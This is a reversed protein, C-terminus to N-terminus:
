EGSGLYGSSSPKQVFYPAGMAYRLKGIEVIFRVSINADQDGPSQELERLRFRVAMAVNPTM